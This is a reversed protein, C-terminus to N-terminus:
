LLRSLFLAPKEKTQFGPFHLLALVRVIAIGCEYCRGLARPPGEEISPRLVFNGEVEEWRGIAASSSPESSQTDARPTRPSSEATETAAMQQYIFTNSYRTRRRRRAAPNSCPHFSSASQLLLCALLVITLVTTSTTQQHKRAANTRRRSRANCLRSRQNNRKDM